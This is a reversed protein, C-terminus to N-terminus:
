MNITMYLVARILFQAITSYPANNLDRTPDLFRGCIPWFLSLEQERSQEGRRRCWDSLSRSYGVPREIKQRRNLKSHLM